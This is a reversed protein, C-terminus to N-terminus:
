ATAMTLHASLATRQATLTSLRSLLAAIETDIAEVAKLPAEAEALASVLTDTKAREEGDIAYLEETKRLAHIVTTHDRGGFRRGIEPLSMGPKAKRMLWMFRQRPRALHRRRCPGIIDSYTLGEEACCLMIVERSSLRTPAPTPLPAPPAFSARPKPTELFERITAEPFGTMRATASYSRTRALTERVMALNELVSSRPATAFSTSLM